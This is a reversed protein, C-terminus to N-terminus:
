NTDWFHLLQTFIVITDKEKQEKYRQVNETRKMEATSKQQWQKKVM